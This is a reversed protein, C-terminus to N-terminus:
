RYHYYKAQARGAQLFRTAAAVRHLECKKINANEFLITDRRSTDISRRSIAWLRVPHARFDM